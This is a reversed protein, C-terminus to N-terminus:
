KQILMKVAVVLLFVAFIRRLMAESTIDAMVAGLYAGGVFGLIILGAMRIDVNGAQYYKWVALVGIPLLLIALSTGQARHQSMGLLYVLAPVLIIGGGVGMLGSLAGAVIGLLVLLFENM